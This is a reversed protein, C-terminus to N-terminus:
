TGETFVLRREFAGRRRAVLAKAYEPSDYWRQLADMSPFEVIVLVFGDPWTGEAPRVVGGRVLYRGKHLAISDAAKARYEDFLDPDLPRVESIAYATMADM